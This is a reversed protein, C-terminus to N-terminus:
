AVQIDIRQLRWEDPADYTSYTFSVQTELSADGAKYTETMIIFPMALNDFLKKKARKPAGWQRRAMQRLRAHKQAAAENALKPAYILHGEEPQSIIFLRDNLITEGGLADYVQSLSNVSLEPDFAIRRFSM